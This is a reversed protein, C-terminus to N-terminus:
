SLNTKGCVYAPVQTKLTRIQVITTILQQRKYVLLKGFNNKKKIRLLNQMVHKTYFTYESM